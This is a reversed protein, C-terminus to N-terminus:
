RVLAYLLEDVAAGDKTAAKKMRGEFQYGSKELVRASAPNWDLVCAYIRCLDFTLFSHDTFARVSRTAIGQGWYAEGLWYGIEASRRHIDEQLVVGIAGVAQDDVAIAFATEPTLSRAHVIWKRADAMTYPHPFLDRLNRWVKYNNAHHVLSEVDEIRWSRISCGDLPM